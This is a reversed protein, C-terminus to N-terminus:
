RDPEVLSWALDATSRAVHGYSLAKESSANGQLGRAYVGQTISASRFLSFAVYFNWGDIKERGTRRCYAAVYEKESQVGLNELESRPQAISTHPSHYYTMCNYALDGLPHGLTSLEWDLVALVEPKSRHFIMNELRYDGHVISTEDGSPINEALWISLRNMSEIEETKAADFQKTWRGIQRAYYNGPKGFTELGAARYDVSHLKALVSNMADYIARREERQMAPLRVDRFVRGEIHEMVYFPTGIVTEDMCLLHMRGVPVDTDQLASLVRFERDVAHASPLLRGPPKKRLVYKESGTEICFTPNSQGGTFQTVTIPERFGEIQDTLYKALNVEDFRHAERVESTESM